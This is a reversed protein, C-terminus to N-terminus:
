EETAQLRRLLNKCSNLSWAKGREPPIGEANLHRMLMSPTIVDGPVLTAKFRDVEPRLQEAKREARARNASAGMLANRFDPAQGKRVSGSALSAVKRSLAERSFAAREPLEFETWKKGSLCDIVDIQLNDLDALAKTINAHSTKRLLHGIDALWLDIGHNQARVVARKFDANRTFIGDRYTTVAALRDPRDVNMKHAFRFVIASQTRVADIQYLQEVSTPMKSVYAFLFAVPKPHSM